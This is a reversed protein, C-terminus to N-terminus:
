ADRPSPSTYLLCYNDQKVEKGLLTNSLGYAELFHAEEDPVGLPPMVFNFLLGCYIAVFFYKHEIKIKQSQLLLTLAFVGALCILSLGLYFSKYSGNYEIFRIHGTRSIEGDIVAQVEYEKKELELEQGKEFQQISTNNGKIESIQYDNELVLKKGDYVSLHLEMPQEITGSITIERVKGITPCFSGGDMGITHVIPMSEGSIRLAWLLYLMVGAVITIVISKLIQRGFTSLNKM